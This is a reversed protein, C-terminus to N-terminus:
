RTAKRAAARDRKWANLIIDDEADRAMRRCDPCGGIRNCTWYGHGTAAAHCRPKRSKTTTTSTM